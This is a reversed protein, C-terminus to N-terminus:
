ALDISAALYPAELAGYPSPMQKSQEPLFKGIGWVVTLAVGVLVVVVLAGGAGKLMLGLAWRSLGSARAEEFYKEAM